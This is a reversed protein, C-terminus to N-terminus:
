RHLLMYMHLLCPNCPQPCHPLMASSQAPPNPSPFPFCVRSIGYPSPTSSIGPSSKLHCIRAKGAHARRHPMCKQITLDGKQTQEDSRQGRMKSGGTWWFKTRTREGYKVWAKSRKPKKVCFFRNKYSHILSHFFIVRIKNQQARQARKKSRPLFKPKRKRM